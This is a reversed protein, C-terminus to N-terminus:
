EWKILHQFFNDESRQVSAWTFDLYEFPLWLQIPYIYGWCLYGRIDLYAGERYLKDMFNLAPYPFQVRVYNGVKSKLDLADALEAM